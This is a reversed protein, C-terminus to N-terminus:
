EDDTFLEKLMTARHAFFDATIRYHDTDEYRREVIKGDSLDFISSDPYALLIPSHTALVLQSGHRSKTEACSSKAYSPAARAPSDRCEPCVRLRRCRFPAALLGHMSHRM